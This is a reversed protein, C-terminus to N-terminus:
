ARGAGANLKTMSNSPRARGERRGLTAPQTPGFPTANNDFKYLRLTHIWELKRLLDDSSTTLLTRAADLRTTKGDGTVDPIKMSATDDILVALM